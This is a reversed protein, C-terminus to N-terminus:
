RRMVRALAWRRDEEAEKWWWGRGVAEARRGVRRGGVRGERVKAAVSGEAGAAEAAKAEAWRRQGGSVEVAAVGEGGGGGVLRGRGSPERQRREVVWQRGGESAM